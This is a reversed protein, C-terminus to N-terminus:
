PPTAAGSRGARPRGNRFFCGRKPDQIEPNLYHFCKKKLWVLMFHGLRGLRRFQVQRDSDRQNGYFLYIIVTV